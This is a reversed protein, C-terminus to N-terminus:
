SRIRSPSRRAPMGSRYGSRSELYGGRTIALDTPPLRDKSGTSTVRPATSTRGACRMPVVDMAGRLVMTLIMNVAGRSVDDGDAFVFEDLLGNLLSLAELADRKTPQDPVPPMPAPDFLM